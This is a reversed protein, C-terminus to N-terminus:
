EVSPVYYTENIWSEGFFDSRILEENDVLREVFDFAASYNMKKVINVTDQYKQFAYVKEFCNDYDTVILVAEVIRGFFGEETDNYVESMEEKTLKTVVIEYGAKNYGEYVWEDASATVAAAVLMMLMIM